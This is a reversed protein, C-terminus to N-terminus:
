RGKLRRDFIARIADVVIPIAREDIPRPDVAVVGTNAWHSRLHIPPEWRRLDDLLEVATFGLAAEDLALHVRWIERGAEDQQVEVRTHPLGTLGATLGDILRQQRAREAKADGGTYRELAALFGMITEKGVKMPRAIGLEQIRCARIRERSGVIVGSTPGEIAKGGSYAVLDAGMALYRRLDEEAAADVLVPVQKRRAIAIVEPLSLMGKQVAHHSQVFVIAATREGIAGALDAGTVHNATGTLVPRGGALRIMQEIPAGFDVAHGMQLIVESPEWDVNPLRRVRYPDGGSLVAGVMICIGAAAGTTIMAAEAGVLRAALEGARSKLEEMDVNAQAAESMAAIVDPHLATGGLATMRGSANIVQQVGLSRYSIVRDVERQNM